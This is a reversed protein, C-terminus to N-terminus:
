FKRENTREVGRRLDNLEKMHEAHTDGTVITGDQMTAGIYQYAQFKETRLGLEDVDYYEEEVIGSTGAQKFIGGPQTIDDTPANRLRNTEERFKTEVLEAVPLNNQEQIVKQNANLAAFSILNQKQGNNVLNDANPNTNRNFDLTNGGQADKINKFNLGEGISSATANLIGRKTEANIAERTAGTTAQFSRQYPEAAKEAIERMNLSSELMKLPEDKLKTFYGPDLAGRFMTQVNFYEQITTDFQDNIKESALNGFDNAVVNKVESLTKDKFIDVDFGNLVNAPNFVNDIATNIMKAGTPGFTENVEFSNTIQEQFDTIGTFTKTLDGLLSAGAAKAFGTAAGVLSGGSINSAAFDVAPKVFGKISNVFNIQRTINATQTAVNRAALGAGAKMFEPAGAFSFGAGRTKEIISAGQTALQSVDTVQGAVNTLSTMLSDGIANLMQGLGFSVAASLLGGLLGGAGKNLDIRSGMADLNGGATLNTDGGSSIDADEGVQQTLNKGIIEKKYGGVFIDWNGEIHTHCNGDITLNANGKIYVFDSGAIIEYRDNKVKHHFNGLANYEAFSGKPHYHHIRENGETSDYERIVGGKGEYVDNDPYVSNYAPPPENWTTGKNAIPVGTERDAEKKDVIDPPYDGDNRALKNTDPQFIFKPYTGEPDNFGVSPNAPAMPVGPITGIILPRNAKEGDMFFGVVWSGNQIGTPSEGVGSNSSSNVPMMVQAWPLDKTPLKGKDNTHWEICRVKLRGTKIPDVNDEVVGFFWIFGNLGLFDQNYKQTM